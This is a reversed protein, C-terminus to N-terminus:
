PWSFSKKEHVDELFIFKLSKWIWCTGECLFSLFELALKEMCICEKARKRHTESRKEVIQRYKPNRLM